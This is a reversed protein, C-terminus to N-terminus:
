KYENAHVEALFPLFQKRLYGNLCGIDIRCTCKEARNLPLSTTTCKKTAETHKARGKRFNIKRFPVREEPQADGPGEITNTNDSCEKSNRNQYIKYRSCIIERRTGKWKSRSGNSVFNGQGSEALMLTITNILKSGDSENEFATSLDIPVRYNSPNIRIIWNKFLTDGCYQFLDVTAIGNVDYADNKHCVVCNPFPLSSKWSATYYDKILHDTSKYIDM